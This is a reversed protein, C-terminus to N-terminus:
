FTRASGIPWWRWQVRGVIYRKPVFGWHRSDSSNNRHDGMVFYYGERVVEPGWDDHSRFDAPVFADSRAIGNVYVVGAVIRVEDGEEAIVRKVFSKSPDLPYYLMVIDDRDPSRRLYTLKNVVLRDQDNLTPEMAHGEIRAVQFLFTTVFISIIIRIAVLAIVSISLAGLQRRGLAKVAPTRRRTVLWPILGFLGFFVVPLTWVFWNRGHRAADWATWVLVAVGALTGFGIIWIM